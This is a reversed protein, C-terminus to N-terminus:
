NEAQADTDGLRAEIATLASRTLVLKDHRLVDFVNLGAYPEVDAGSEGVRLSLYDPVRTVEVATLQNCVLM